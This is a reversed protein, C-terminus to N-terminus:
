CQLASLTINTYSVFQITCYLHMHHVERLMNTLMPDFDVHLQGDKARVLLPKIVSSNDDSQSTRTNSDSSNSSDSAQSDAYVTHCACIILM